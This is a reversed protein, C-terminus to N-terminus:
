GRLGARRKKGEELWRVKKEVIVMLMLGKEEQLEDNGTWLRGFSDKKKLDM